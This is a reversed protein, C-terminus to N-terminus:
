YYHGITSSQPPLFTVTTTEGSAFLISVTVEQTSALPPLGLCGRLLSPPLRGIMTAETLIQGGDRDQQLESPLGPLLGQHPPGPLPLSYHHPHM